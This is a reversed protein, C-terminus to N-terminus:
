GCLRRTFLRLTEAGGELDFWYVKKISPVKAITGGLHTKGGDPPGYILIKKADIDGEKAKNAMDLLTTM